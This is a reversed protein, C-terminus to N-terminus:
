GRRPWPPISRHVSERLKPQHKGSALTYVRGGHGSLARSVGGPPLPAACSSKWPPLTRGQKEQDSSAKCTNVRSSDIGLLWPKIAVLFAFPVTAVVV